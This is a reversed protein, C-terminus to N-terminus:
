RKSVSRVRQRRARVPPAQDNILGWAALAYMGRATRVFREDRRLHSILNAQEGAGPLSIRRGGLLRMIESIHLPRQAKELEDHVAKVATKGVSDGPTNSHQKEIPLLPEAEGQRLALLREWLREEEKLAALKSQQQALENAAILLQERIATLSAKILDVSPVVKTAHQTESM